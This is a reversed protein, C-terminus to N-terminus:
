VRGRCKRSVGPHAKQQIIHAMCDDLAAEMLATGPGAPLAPKALNPVAAEAEPMPLGTGRLRTSPSANMPMRQLGSADDAANGGRSAKQQWLPVMGEKALSVGCNKSGGFRIM